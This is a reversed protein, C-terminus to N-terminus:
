GLPSLTRSHKLGRLSFSLWCTLLSAWIRDQYCPTHLLPPDLAYTPRNLGSINYLQPLYGDVSPFASSKSRDSLLLRLRAITLAQSVVPTKSNQCASVPTARSVRSIRNIDQSSIFRYLTRRLIIFAGPELLYKASDKLFGKRPFM